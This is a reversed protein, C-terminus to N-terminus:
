QNRKKLDRSQFLMGGVLLAFFILLDVLFNFHTLGGLGAGAMTAGLFASIIILAWEMYRSILVAGLVGAGLFLIWQISQPIKFLSALFYGLLGAGLFGALIIMFKEVYVALVAFGIALLSAIFFHVASIYDQLFQSSILLGVTLGILAAFIWFLKRGFFLTVLGFILAILSLIGGLISWVTGFINNLADFM